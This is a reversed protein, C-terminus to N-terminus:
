SNRRARALWAARARWYILGFIVGVVAYGAGVVLWAYVSLRDVPPALPQAQSPPSGTPQTEPAREHYEHQCYLLVTQMEDDTEPGWKVHKKPDPNAPNDSSNDYHSTFHLRTGGPLPKVFNYDLQWNFDYRPVWLQCEQRGDPYTVDLRFDKGRLHMHPRISIVQKDSQVLFEKEAVVNPSGPPIDINYNQVGLIERLYKPRKEGKWLRFGVKSKDTVAKGNPTYHMQWVLYHGTPFLIATDPPLIVPPTGPGYSAVMSILNDIHLEAHHVVGRAGPIVEMATILVDQEWPVKAAFVRYPVTGSAPVNQEGPMEVVLDPEGITWGNEWIREPPLDKTEGPPKDSDIWALLAKLDAPKLRRDNSFKGHRPDAFWPPMRGDSVTEKINDAQKVADEYTLLSFPAATGPHHCVQCNEQLIRSVEKAYTPRSCFLAYLVLANM